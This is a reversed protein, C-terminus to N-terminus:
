CCTKCRAASGDPSHSRKFMTNFLTKLFCGYINLCSLPLFVNIFHVWQNKNWNRRQAALDGCWCRFLTFTCSGPEQYQSVNEKNCSYKRMLCVVCIYKYCSIREQAEEVKIFHFRESPLIAKIHLEPHACDDRLDSGWWKIIDLMQRYQKVTAGSRCAIEIGAKEQVQPPLLHELRDWSDEASPTPYGPCSPLEDYSSLSLCGDVSESVGVALKSDGTPRVHQLTLISALADPFFCCFDPFFEVCSWGLCLFRVRLKEQQSAVGSVRLQLTDKWLLLRADGHILLVSPFRFLASHCPLCKHLIFRISQVYVVLTSFRYNWLSQQTM